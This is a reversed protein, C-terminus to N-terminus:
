IWPLAKYAVFSVLAQWAGASFQCSERLLLPTATWKTLKTTRGLDGLGYGQATLAAASAFTSPRKEALLRGEVSATALSQQEPSRYHKLTFHQREPRSHHNL